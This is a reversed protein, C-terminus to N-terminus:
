TSELTAAVPNLERLLLEKHANVLEQEFEQWIETKRYRTIVSVHIGLGNAIEDSTKGDFSMKCASLILKTSTNRM